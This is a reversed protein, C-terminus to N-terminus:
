VELLVAVPTKSGLGGIVRETAAAPHDELAPLLSTSPVSVTVCVGAAAAACMDKGRRSTTYLGIM